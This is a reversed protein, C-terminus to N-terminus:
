KIEGCDSIIAEKVVRARHKDDREFVQVCQEIARITEFSDETVHGFVTHKGDVQLIGLHCLM